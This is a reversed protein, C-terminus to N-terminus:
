RPDLTPPAIRELVRLHLEAWSAQDSVRPQRWAPAADAMRAPSAAGPSQAHADMWLTLTNPGRPVPMALANRASPRREYIRHKKDLTEFLPDEDEISESSGLFLRAGARLAFHFTQRVRDQAERTLYILLNRCSVLDLRSFASDRLLDHLSFLVTERLERRM